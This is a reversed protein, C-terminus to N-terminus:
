AVARHLNLGIGENGLVAVVAQAAADELDDALDILLLVDGVVPPVVVVVLRPLSNV